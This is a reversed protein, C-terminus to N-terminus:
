ALSVRSLLGVENHVSFIDQVVMSSAKCLDVEKLMFAPTTKAGTTSLMHYM